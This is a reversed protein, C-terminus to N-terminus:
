YSYPWLRYYAKFIEWRHALGRPEKVLFFVIILGFFLLSLASNAQISIAPFLYVMVPTIINDVAVDLMKLFITGFVAGLTSGLGGVILMGLFWISDRLAFHDPHIYSTYFAWLSGAVGGYFCGLYFALLKNKLLEIGMVEAAIDNDRIAIFARGARSRTINRAFFGLVLAVFLILYFFKVDSDIEIGGVKLVEVYLGAEGGTIPKLHLFVWIMIFQAALTSMALYFGKIKLSPLAFILGIFAAVLGSCILTIVLPPGLSNHILATTYAGIGLFAAQGLSIQGCLGTLLHLGLVAIISIVTFNIVSLWYTNLYLPFTFLLLSFAALLFWHARTRFLATDKEYTADFTGCPRISM